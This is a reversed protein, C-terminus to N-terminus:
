EPRIMSTTPAASARTSNRLVSRVQGASTSGASSTARASVKVRLAQTPAQAVAHQSHQAWVPFGPALFAALIDELAEVKAPDMNLSNPDIDVFVPKAGTLGCGYRLAELLTTRPEAAVERALSLVAEPNTDHYEHAELNVTNGSAVLTTDLDTTLRPNGALYDNVLALVRAVDTEAGRAWDDVIIGRLDSM